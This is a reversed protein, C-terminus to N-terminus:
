LTKSPIPLAAVLGELGQMSNPYNAQVGTVAADRATEAEQFRAELGALNSTAQNLETQRQAVIETAAKLARTAAKVDLRACNAADHLRDAEAKKDFATARMQDRIPDKKIENDKVMAVDGKALAEGVLRVIITMMQDVVNQGGYNTDISNPMQSIPLPLESLAISWDESGKSPWGLRVLSGPESQLVPIFKFGTDPHLTSLVGAGRLRNVVKISHDLRAALLFMYYLWDKNALHQPTFFVLGTHCTLAAPLVRNSPMDTSSVDTYRTRLFATMKTGNITRSEIGDVLSNSWTTVPEGSNYLAHVFVHRGTTKGTLRPHRSNSDFLRVQRIYRKFVDAITTRIHDQQAWFSPDLILVNRGLTLVMENYAACTSALQNAMRELDKTNANLSSRYENDMLYEYSLPMDVKLIERAAEVNERFQGILRRVDATQKETLIPPPFSRDSPESFLAM